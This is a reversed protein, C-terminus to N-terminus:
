KLFFKTLVISEMRNELFLIAVMGLSNDFHWVTIPKMKEMIAM